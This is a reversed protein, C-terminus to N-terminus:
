YAKKFCNRILNSVYFDLWKVMIVWSFTAVLTLVRFICKTLYTLMKELQIKFYLVPILKLEPVQVWIQVWIEPTLIILESVEVWLRFSVILFIFHIQIWIEPSLIILEPFRLGLQFFCGSTFTCNFFQFYLILKRRSYWPRDLNLCISFKEFNWFHGFNNGFTDCCTKFM